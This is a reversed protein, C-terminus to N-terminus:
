LMVVRADGLAQLDSSRHVLIAEHLRAAAASLARNPSVESPAALALSAATESIERTIPMTELLEDAYLRFAAEAEQRVGAPADKVSRLMELRLELLSVTTIGIKAHDDTLLANAVDAGPEQFYHALVASADFVHTIM